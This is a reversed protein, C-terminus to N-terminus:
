HNLDMCSEHIKIMNKIPEQSAKALSQEIPSLKSHLHRLPPGYILLIALDASGHSYTFGCSMDCTPSSDGERAKHRCHPEYSPDHNPGHSGDPGPYPGALPAEGMPPRLLLATPQFNADCTTHAAHTHKPNRLM